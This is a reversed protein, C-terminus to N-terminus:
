AISEIHVIDPRPSGPLLVIGVADVRLDGRHQTEHSWELLLRRLRSAKRQTIAELPSGYGTGSRTKVEVAVFVHGDRMVLDIEGYRCRWNRALLILGRSVLHECALQEGIAGLRQNHSTHHQEKASNPAPTPM